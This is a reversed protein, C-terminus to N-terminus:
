FGLFFERITQWTAIPLSSTFLRFPTPKDLHETARSRAFDSRDSLDSQQFLIRLMNIPSTQATFFFPLNKSLDILAIHDTFCFAVM